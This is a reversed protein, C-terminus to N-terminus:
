YAEVFIGVLSALSDYVPVLSSRSCRYVGDQWYYNGEELTMNGHYAIPDDLTGEHTENIQEWLAAASVPEWGAQSTHAQLVRWLRGDYQAKYGVAYSVGAEWAPYFVMMRAATNDDVALSNVQQTLLMRSVESETLPRSKEAAQAVKSDHEMQALEEATLDRCIGNDNIRM